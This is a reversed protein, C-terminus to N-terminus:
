QNKDWSKYSTVGSVNRWDLTLPVETISAVHPLVGRRSRPPRQLRTRRRCGARSAPAGIKWMPPSSSAGELQV